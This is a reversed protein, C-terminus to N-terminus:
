DSNKDFETIQGNYPISLNFIVAILVSCLM